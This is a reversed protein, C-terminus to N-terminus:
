KTITKQLPALFTSSNGVQYSELCETFFSFGIVDWPIDGITRIKIIFYKFKGEPNSCFGIKISDYDPKKELGIIKLTTKELNVVYHVEKKWGSEIPNELTIQALINCCLGLGIIFFLSINKM